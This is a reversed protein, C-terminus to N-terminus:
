ANTMSVEILGILWNAAQLIAARQVITANRFTRNLLIQAKRFSPHARGLEGLNNLRALLQQRQKELNDYRKRFHADDGAPDPPRQKQRLRKGSEVPMKPPAKSDSM